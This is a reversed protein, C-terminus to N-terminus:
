FFMIEKEDHKASAQLEIFNFQYDDDDLQMEAFSEISSFEPTTGLEDIQDDLVSEIAEALLRRFQSITM